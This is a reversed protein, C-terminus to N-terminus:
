SHDPLSFAWVRGGLDAVYLKGGGLALGTPAIGSAALDIKRV